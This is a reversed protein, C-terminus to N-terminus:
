VLYFILILRQDLVWPFWHTRGRDKLWHRITLTAIEHAFRPCFISLNGPTRPLSFYPSAFTSISIMCLSSNTLIFTRTQLVTEQSIVCPETLPKAVRPMPMATRPWGHGLHYSTGCWFVTFYAAELKGVDRVLECDALRALKVCPHGHSHWLPTDFQYWDCLKQVIWTASLLSWIKQFLAMKEAHWHYLSV